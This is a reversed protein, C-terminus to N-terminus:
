IELYEDIKILENYILGINKKLEKEVLDGELLRESSIM